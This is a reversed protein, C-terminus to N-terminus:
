KRPFLKYNNEIFLKESVKHFVQYMTWVMLDAYPNDLGIIKEAENWKQSLNKSSKSLWDYTKGDPNNSTIKEIKYDSIDIEDGWLPIVLDYISSFKM